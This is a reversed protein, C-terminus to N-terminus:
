EAVERQIVAHSFIDGGGVALNGEIEYIGSWTITIGITDIDAVYEVKAMRLAECVLEAFERGEETYPTYVTHKQIFKM